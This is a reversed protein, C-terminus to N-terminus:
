ATLGASLGRRGRARRARVRDVWEMDGLCLPRGDASRVTMPAIPQRTYRDVLVPNSPM